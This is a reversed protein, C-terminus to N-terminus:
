FEMFSLACLNEFTKVPVSSVREEADTNLVVSCGGSELGFERLWKAIETRAQLINTTIVVAGLISSMREVLVLVRLNDPLLARIDEGTSTLCFFDACVEAELRGNVRQYVSRSLQCRKCSPRYPIHGQMRRKALEAAKTTLPALVSVKAGDTEGKAIACAMESSKQLGPRLRLWPVNAFLEVEVAWAGSPSM